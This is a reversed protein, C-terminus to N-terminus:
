LDRKISVREKTRYSKSNRAKFKDPMDSPTDDVKPKNVIKGDVTKLVVKRTAHPSQDESNVRAPKSKRNSFAEQKEERVTRARAKKRYGNKKSLNEDFKEIIIALLGHEGQGESMLNSLYWFLVIACFGLIALFTLTEM